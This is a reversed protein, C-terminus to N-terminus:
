NNRATISRQWPAIRHELSGVLRTLGVGIVMLVLVPVFIGPTNFQSGANIILGGLGGIATFFEAVVVAVVCRGIALRMGTMIYPITAPLIISRLIARQSAVFATGVEILSKPVARVGAWANIIVPFVGMTFVIAVKATFGLGFWLVFLPILAVLPMSYAATVFPGFAAEMVRFRGILVGVPIGIICMAYGLALPQLSSLTAELLEGSTLLDWFEVAVLTPKSFFLPNIQGGVIEWIVLIVAMSVITIVFSPVRRRPRTNGGAAAATRDSTATTQLTPPM